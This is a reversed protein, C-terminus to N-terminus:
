GLGVNEIRNLGVEESKSNGIKLFLKRFKTNKKPKFPSLPSGGWNEQILLFECKV